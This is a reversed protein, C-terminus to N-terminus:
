SNSQRWITEEIKGRALVLRAAVFLWDSLRNLFVLHTPEPSIGVLSREARRCVARALHLRTAAESGGPLVFNRLVPLETQFSDMQTELEAALTPWAGSPQNQAIEAGLDFLRSQMASATQAVEQPLDCALCLGLCANLEDLDGLVSFIPDTKSRREGGPLGTEGSDGTRTYVRM